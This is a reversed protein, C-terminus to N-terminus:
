KDKLLKAVTAADEGGGLTDKGDQLVRNFWITMVGVAFGQADVVPAGSFGRLDVPPALTYTFRDGFERKTVKGRYVNQKCGAEAYPCGILFVTEGVEVPTPRLKLPTAPLTKPADKLTLLLWDADEQDLGGVAVKGAEVAKTLETRPHVKWSRLVGDLKSVPVPPEVGGAAGILHRATAVLVTGDRREVLFASAAQLGSHGNFTADNTLVIQPWDQPSQKAWGPPSAATMSSEPTSAGSSKGAPSSNAPADSKGCGLALLGAVVIGFLLMRLRQM